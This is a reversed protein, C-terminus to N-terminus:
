LQCISAGLKPEVVIKSSLQNGTNQDLVIVEWKRRKDTSVLVKLDGDCVEPPVDMRTWYVDVEWAGDVRYCNAMKSASLKRIFGITTCALLKPEIELLLSNPKFQFDSESLGTYEVKLAKGTSLLLYYNDKREFLQLPDGEGLSWYKAYTGDIPVISLYSENEGNDSIKYGGLIWGIESNLSVNVNDLESVIKEGTPSVFVTNAIAGGSVALFIGITLSLVCTRSSIQKIFNMINICRLLLEENLRVLQSYVIVSLLLPCGM